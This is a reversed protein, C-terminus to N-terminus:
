VLYQIARLLLETNDQFGGLAKNCHGCLLGRIKGSKHCHDVALRKELKSQHLLCIACCENQKNFLQDYEEITIGFKYKLTASKAKRKNFKYYDGDKVRTCSKCWNCKGDRKHIDKNFSAYPQPEKIACNPNICTKVMM